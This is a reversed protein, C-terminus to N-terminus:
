RNLHRRLSRLLTQYAIPLMEFYVEWSVDPVRKLYLDVVPRKGGPIQLDHVYVCPCVFREADETELKLLCSELIHMMARLESNHRPLLGVHREAPELNLGLYRHGECSTYTVWGFEEVLLYVLEHVDTEISEFFRPHHRSLSPASLEGPQGQSNRNGFRSIRIQLPQSNGSASAVEWSVVFEEYEPMENITRPSKHVILNM